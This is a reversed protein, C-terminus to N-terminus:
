CGWEEGAGGKRGLGCGGEERFWGRRGLGGGQKNVVPWGRWGKEEERSERNVELGGGGEEGSWGGEEGVGCAHM